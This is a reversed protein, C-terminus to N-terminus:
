SELAAIVAPLCDLLESAFGARLGAQARLRQGALSHLAVGLQAAVFPALGQALLGGILGTLVDGTGGKALAANAQPCIAWPGGPAVVLTHAGKLVVVAQLEDALQRAAALRDAEVEAVTKGIMAAMEGPHPTLVLRGAAPAAMERKGALIHLADADLLVPVTTMALVRQILDVEAASTGLGPGAAIASKKDLLKEIRKDM